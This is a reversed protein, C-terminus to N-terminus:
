KLKSQVIYGLNVGIQELLPEDKQLQKLRLYDGFKNGRICEIFGSPDIGYIAQSDKEWTAFFNALAKWTINNCKPSFYVKQFIENRIMESALFICLVYVKNITNITNIDGKAKKSDVDTYEDMHDIFSGIIPCVADVSIPGGNDDSIYTETDRFKILNGGYNYGKIWFNPGEAELEIQKGSSGLVLTIKVKEEKGIDKREDRMKNAEKEYNPTSCIDLKYEKMM